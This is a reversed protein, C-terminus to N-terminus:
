HISLTMTASFAPRIIFSVKRKRREVVREVRYVNNVSELVEGVSDEDYFGCVKVSNSRLVAMKNNKQKPSLM